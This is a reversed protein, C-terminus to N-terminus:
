DALKQTCFDGISDIARQADDLIHASSHWGHFMEPWVEYVVDVKANGAKRVFETSDDLLTEASGVQILLPPLKTLDGHLPSAYPTKADADGLYLAAMRDLYAKCIIPDTAANIEFSKGSQTLDTWPSMPIAGAPLPEGADRLRLLLALTLGGGASIGGVFTRSPDAGAALLWHYASHADDIAAPYPHEPALRYDISLVRAKTAASIRAATARTAAASGRYYGGGHLFLFWRDPAIAAAQVWEAPVGNADVAEYSAGAPIPVSAGNAAHESRLEDITKEPAYPHARRAALIKELVANDPM